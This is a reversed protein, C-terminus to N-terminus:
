MPRGSRLARYRALRKLILPLADRPGAALVPVGLGEIRSTLTARNRHARASFIAAVRRSHETRAEPFFDPTSPAVVVIGHGRKRALRLSDLVMHDESIEELDSILVIFQSRRSAGARQLAEAMGREKSVLPSHRRYPIELGSLRCFLRMIRAEETSAVIGREFGRPANDARAQIGKRLQRMLAEANFLQGGPGRMVGAEFATVGAPLKARVAVSTGEQYALYEAVASLLEQDTPDTLDEDVVNNLEILREVLRYLQAHGDGPKVQSYIRHDFTLLGVRDGADLAVRALAACLGLGYDLKARGPRQSRMTSSIDLLLWHTVLIESELERVMLKRTRATAKWAINKFPDGPIHERIERLDSGLGRQRLLRTGVREHSAGTRPSFPIPERILGLPPFVKISFLSPYYLQLEFAGFRDTVQVLVGQFFWYGSSRPTARLGLRVERRAPVLARLGTDSRELKISSSAVIRMQRVTLHFPSRNRLMIQLSLPRDAVLAGGASESAPVWWALELNRRRLMAGAPVFMVYLFLLVSVLVLGLALLPWAALVAGALTFAGGVLALTLGTPTLAPTM